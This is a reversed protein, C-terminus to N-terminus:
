NAIRQLIDTLYQTLEEKGKADLQKVNTLGRAALFKQTEPYMSNIRDLDDRLEELPKLIETRQQDSLKALGEALLEKEKADM